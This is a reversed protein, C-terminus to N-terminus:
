RTWIESLDSWGNILVFHIQWFFVSGTGYKSEYLWISETRNRVLFTAALKHVFCRNISQQTKYMSRPEIKPPQILPHTTFNAALRCKNHCLIYASLMDFRPSSSFYVYERTYKMTPWSHAIFDSQLEPLYIKPKEAATAHRWACKKTCPTPKM